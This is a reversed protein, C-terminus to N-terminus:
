SGAGPPPPPPMALSVASAYEALFPAPDTERSAYWRAVAYSIPGRNYPDPLDSKEKNADDPDLFTGRPVRLYRFLYSATATIGGAVYLRVGRAGARVAVLPREDTPGYQPFTRVRHDWEWAIETCVVEDATAPYLVVDLLLHCDDPLAYDTANDTLATAASEKMLSAILAHDRPLGAKRGGARALANNIAEAAFFQQGTRFWPKLTAEPQFDLLPDPVDAIILGLISAATPPGAPPFDPGADSWLPNTSAAM